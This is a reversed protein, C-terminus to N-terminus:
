APGITVRTGLDDTQRPRSCACGPGLGDVGQTGGDQPSEPVCADREVFQVKGGQSMAWSDNASSAPLSIEDRGPGATMKKPRNVDLVFDV